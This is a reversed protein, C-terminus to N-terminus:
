TSKSDFSILSTSRTTEWAVVTSSSKSYAKEGWLIYRSDIPAGAIGGYFKVTGLQKLHSLHLTVFQCGTVARITLMPVAFAPLSLFINMRVHNAGEISHFIILRLWELFFKEAVIVTPQLLM